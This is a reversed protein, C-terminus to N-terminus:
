IESVIDLLEEQCSYTEANDALKICLSNANDGAELEIEVIRQLSFIENVCSSILSRRGIGPLGSIIFSKPKKRGDYPTVIDELLERERARGLFLPRQYNEAANIIQHHIERAIISPSSETRILARRLWNPIRDREVGNGIIFVISRSLTRNIKSYFAEKMEYDCWLSDISDTTAFFVFISTNGLHNVISKEFELGGSFSYEDFVCDARGLQDAVERVFEKDLSSHSLFAKM